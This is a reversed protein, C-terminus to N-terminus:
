LPEISAPLPRADLEGRSEAAALLRIMARFVPRVDRAEVAKSEFWLRNGCRLKARLEDPTLRVIPETTASEDFQYVVLARERRALWAELWGHAELTADLRFGETEAAFIVGDAHDLLFDALETSYVAGTMASVHLQVPETREGEAPLLCQVQSYWVDRWHIMRRTRAFRMPLAGNLWTLDYDLTRSCAGFVTVALHLLGNEDRHM